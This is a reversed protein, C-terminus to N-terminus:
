AAPSEGGSDEAVAGVSAITVCVIGIIQQPELIEGLILYGVLAAVAPEISMLIGFTRMAM